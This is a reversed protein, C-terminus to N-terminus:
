GATEVKVARLKITLFWAPFIWAFHREYLEPRRNALRAVLRAALTQRFVLLRQVNVFRTPSYFSWPHGETFYDFSFYSLHHRHTPDVFSNDCSFHPTTIEIEGGPALLRHVEEMFRPIDELHEVVDFAYIREFHGSPLPYPYRDLDLVLDPEVAALHDVNLCDARHRQGCGLNLSKQPILDGAGGAANGTSV